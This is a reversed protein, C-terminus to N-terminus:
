GHVGGIPRWQCRTHEPRGPIVRITGAAIAADLAAQDLVGGTTFSYELASRDMTLRVGAVRYREPAPPRTEAPVMAAWTAPCTQGPFWDTVPGGSHVVQAGAATAMLVAAAFLYVTRVAM